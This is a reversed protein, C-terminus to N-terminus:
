EGHIVSKVARELKERELMLDRECGRCKIRIDSGTRLVTFEKSGCPHPKKMILIDGAEFKLINM